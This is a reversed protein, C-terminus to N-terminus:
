ASKEEKHTLDGDVSWIAESFQFRRILFISFICLFISKPEQWIQPAIYRLHPKYILNHQM